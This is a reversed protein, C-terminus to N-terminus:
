FAESFQLTWLWGSPCGVVVNNFLISFHSPRYNPPLWLKKEDNYTIWNQGIVWRTSTNDSLRLAVSSVSDSHGELTELCVGNEADWIRITQDGSWSVIRRGDPSFVVSSVFESHDELTELCVGNEADWIRITQDGSGSVIRRGDPSFAVSSVLESHGELTELCVGNEADWIRITKDDSGSVIRRGDPSFVVSYVCGNHGEFTELCTGNEADWIRITQDSSGSVIRRGDPSFAVSSVFESHGEFTELCVGNEADWIRITQDDSGSVIRRGDPSFAVSSVFESHGELTELCVGNEADWIRITKDDSGSVIRRGDPSFAVSSVLESHGELTELCVGNEADWIRITKDDSGSVVRRGDPSFAVSYVWDSHGELTELCVGNEADWIRITQDSSGSVIRRGDPSFVVSNVWDSHGELTELCVGNEADWIRITQDDSGSVIRRGDPSFAVSSVFESHGELTELCVGNEADWIRITKDVSGSVVRRGDPSFAVSSVRGSHGELTSICPSWSIEVKPKTIIWDPIEKEFLIRIISQSPSFLLASIYTQLPAQEIISRNYLLFRYADNVLKTLENNNNTQTDKLKKVAFVGEALERLLSLAELWYLYKEQLFTQILGGSETDNIAGSDKTIAGCFHDVWYLCLYRVPALPDLKPAKVTDILFGPDHLEYIDRKLTRSLVNLSRQFIEQHVKKLGAPFIENYGQKLLFDKASQHVFYVTENRITLFSGCMKVTLALYKPTESISTPLGSLLGLETLHLPRYAASITALIQRCFIPNEQKLQAIQQMMRKYLEDLSPPVEDLVKRVDWKSARELEQLEQIVLAAWLFTGHAKSQLTKQAYGQLSSDAWREAMESVRQNIYLDVADAVKDANEKLELSLRTRSDLNSLKQEIDNRNRSSLIWKVRGITSDHSILELLKLLDVLCEDLADVILWTTKLTPDRLVDTFIDSLSTWSNAGELVSKSTQDMKRQVHIILSPQQHILLFLLGRLVASATNTRGDTAQCFFYSLMHNKPISKKLENIIGCVLMTKGKGPDGKIWLLRSDSPIRWQRFDVNDLIWRYSDRLLGGKNKEIRKKDDRPDTIHLDRLYRKNTDIAARLRVMAQQKSEGYELAIDVGFLGLLSYAHDEERTTERDKAWTFREEVDFSALPEGRLATIPIGTIENIVQKLSAKTGLLTGESSFFGLQSPALLEQLTWGRQFWRSRRFAPKWPRSSPPGNRASDTFSVDSLFVYCWVASSYWHFMSNIAKTLEAKNTKDICCTDIWFYPLGDKKAQRACFRIKEFGAKEQGVGDVVDQFTVEDADSGWTHSLIAYSPINAGRLDKTLSFKDNVEDYQLLRM